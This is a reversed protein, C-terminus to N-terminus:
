LANKNSFFDEAWIGIGSLISILQHYYLSVSHDYNGWQVCLTCLLHMEEDGASPSSTVSFCWKMNIFREDM